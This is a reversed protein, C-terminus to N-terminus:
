PAGTGTVSLSIYLSDQMNLNQIPELVTVKIRIDKKHSLPFRAFAIQEIKELSNKMNYSAIGSSAIETYIKQNKYYVIIEIRGKFTYQIPIKGNPSFISVEYYDLYKPRVDYTKSFGKQEFKFKDVIIPECLNRSHFIVNVLHRLDMPTLYPIQFLATLLPIAILLMAVVLLM